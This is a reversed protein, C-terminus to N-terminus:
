ECARSRSLAHGPANLGGALHSRAAQQEAGGQRGARDARVVGRLFRLQRREMFTPHYEDDGVMRIEVAAEEFSAKGPTAGSILNAPSEKSSPPPNSGETGRYSPTKPSPIVAPHLTDIVLKPRRAGRRAQPQAAPYSVSRVGADLRQHSARARASRLSSRLM